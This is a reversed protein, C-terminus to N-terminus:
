IKAVLPDSDDKASTLQEKIEIGPEALEQSQCIRSAKTELSPPPGQYVLTKKLM